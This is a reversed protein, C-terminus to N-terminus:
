RQHFPKSNTMKSISLESGIFTDYNPKELKDMSGSRRDFCCGCLFIGILGAGIAVGGAILFTSKWNLGGCERALLGSVVSWVMSWLLDLGGIWVCRKSFCGCIYANNDKQHSRYPQFIPAQGPPHAQMTKIQQSWQSFSTTRAPTMLRGQISQSTNTEFLGDFDNQGFFADDLM